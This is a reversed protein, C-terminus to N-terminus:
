DNSPPVTTPTPSPSQLFTADPEGGGSYARLFALALPQLATEGLTDELAEFAEATIGPHSTCTAAMLYLTAWYERENKDPLDAYRSAKFADRAAKDLRATKPRFEFLEFGGVTFEDQLANYEATKAILPDTDSFSREVDAGGADKIAQIEKLLADMRPLLDGRKHLKAQVVAPKFGQIFAAVDFTSADDVNQTPQPKPTRTRPKPAM